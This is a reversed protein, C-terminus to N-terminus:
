PIFGREAAVPLFLEKWLNQENDKKRITLQELEIDEEEDFVM